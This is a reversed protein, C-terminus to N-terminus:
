IPVLSTVFSQLPSANLAFFAVYAIVAVILKSKFDGELLLEGLGIWVLLPVVLLISGPLLVGALNLGFLILGPIFYAAFSLILAHKTQVGHAIVRDALVIVLFVILSQVLLWVIGGATAPVGFVGLFGHFTM